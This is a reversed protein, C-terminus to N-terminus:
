ADNSISLVKFYFAMIPSLIITLIFSGIDVAGFSQNIHYYTLYGFIAGISIGFLEIALRVYTIKKAKTVKVLMLMLEDFVFAPFKSKVIMTLGLPLLLAGTIYFIVQFTLTQAQRDQFLTFNWFDISLAVLFIPLLMYLYRLKKRYSIVIAMIIVSVTFSVMGMSVWTWGINMNLFDRVNITVTDWAGNGLASAKMTNVAFGLILFGALYFGINSKKKSVFDRINLQIM